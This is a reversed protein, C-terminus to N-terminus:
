LGARWAAAALTVGLAGPMAYWVSDLTSAPRNCPRRAQNETVRPAIAVSMNICMEDANRSEAWKRFAILLKVAAASGRYAPLVYFWRDQVLTGDGFFFEMAQGALMGVIEGDDKCAVLLCSMDPNCLMGEAAAIAKKENLGYCKFRSEEVM